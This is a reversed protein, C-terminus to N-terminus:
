IITAIYSEPLAVRRAVAQLRAAYDPNGRDTQPPTPLNFCLAPVSGRDALTALLPEPRYASVSADAYLQDIEAHSLAMLMGHVSGTSAPVLTARDGLRLAMGQVSAQRIDVPDLGKARLADADMFLGYFFVDVRRVM